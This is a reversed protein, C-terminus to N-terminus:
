FMNNRQLNPIAFLFGRGGLSTSLLHLLQFRTEDAMFTLHFSPCISSFITTHRPGWIQIGKRSSFFQMKSKSLKTVNQPSDSVCFTLNLKWDQTKACHYALWEVDVPELKLSQRVSYLNGGQLLYHHDIPLKHWACIMHETFIPLHYARQYVQQLELHNNKSTPKM